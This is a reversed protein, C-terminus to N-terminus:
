TPRPNDVGVAEAIAGIGDRELLRALGRKIDKVLRPGRYVLATLVQVLSAGLRIAEYAHEASGIGGVAVLVHRSRDIRRYWDGIAANAAARLRAGTLTGRMADLEDQPTSLWGYPRPAHTNLIFGKLFGFPDVAALIKETAAHDAPPTIKLFLPPLQGIARFAELLRVLNEPRDFHSFGGATNPCNLNLVVYDAIAVFPHAARALEAIVEEVDSNRGRNTEVLSIGLPIASPARALRAAVIEAGDNPVGYNVMLGEDAPVRFLRPRAPNGPSPDASVSGVEIAGFGLCPLLATALGNKDFGAPLGIPNPFTLGAISTSLRSDDLEYVSGVARRLLRSRGLAHCVTQTAAHTREPDFRFLVPRIGHRYLSM